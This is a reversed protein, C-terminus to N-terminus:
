YELHSSEHAAEELDQHVNRNQIKNAEGPDVLYGDGSRANKTPEISSLVGSTMNGEELDLKNFLYNKVSGPNRILQDYSLLTVEELQALGIFNELHFRYYHSVRDIEAMAIWDDYIDQNLFKHLRFGKYETMERAPEPGSVRLQDDSFWGKRLISNVTDVPNRYIIVAIVNNILDNVQRFKYINDLLKIVANTDVIIEDIEFQSYSKQHRKKIEDTSKYNYISSVDNPNLNINRGSLAGKLLDKCVTIRFLKRWKDKDSFDDIRSVLYSLVAPEYFYETNKATGLLRSLISTGSRGVGGVLITNKNQMFNKSETSLM